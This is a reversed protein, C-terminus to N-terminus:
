KFLKRAVPAAPATETVAATVVFGVEKNASPVINKHQPNNFSHRAHTIANMAANLADSRNENMKRSPSAALVPKPLKEPSWHTLSEEFEFAVEALGQQPRQHPPRLDKLTIYTTKNSKPGNNSM